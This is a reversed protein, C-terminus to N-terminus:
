ITDVSDLSDLVRLRKGAHGVEEQLADGGTEENNADEVITVDRARKGLSTRGARVVAEPSEIGTFNPADLFSENAENDESLVAHHNETKSKDDFAVTTDAFIDLTEFTNVIHDPNSASSLIDFARHASLSEEEDPADTVVLTTLHADSTNSDPLTVRILDTSAQPEDAAFPLSSIRSVTDEASVNALVDLAVAQELSPEGDQNLGDEEVGEPVIYTSGSSSLCRPFALMAIGPNSSWRTCPLYQRFISSHLPFTMMASFLDAM